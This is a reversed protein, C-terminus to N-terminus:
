YYTICGQMCSCDMLKRTTKEEDTKCSTNDRGNTHKTCTDLANCKADDTSSAASSNKSHVKGSFL